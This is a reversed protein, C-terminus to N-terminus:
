EAEGKGIIHELCHNSIDCSFKYLEEIEEDDLGFFAKLAEKQDENGWVPHLDIHHQFINRIIHINAQM